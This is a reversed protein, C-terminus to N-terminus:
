LNERSSQSNKTTQLINKFLFTPLVVGMVVVTLWIILSALLWTSLGQIELGSTFLSTLWLGVFTTVLAIGGRLAPLYRVAMKIIFPEFLLEFITFFVVSAIFGPLQISFGPLLVTALIIGTANALLVLVAQAFFRIM